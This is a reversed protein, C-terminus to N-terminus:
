LKILLYIFGRCLKVIVSSTLFLVFNGFNFSTVLEENFLNIGFDRVQKIQEGASWMTYSM